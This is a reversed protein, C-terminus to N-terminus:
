AQETEEVKEKRKTKLLVAYYREREEPLIAEGNDLKTRVIELIEQEEQHAWHRHIRAIWGNIYLEGAPEAADDGLLLEAILGGSEEPLKEIIITPNFVQDDDGEYSKMESQLTAAIERHSAQTWQQPPLEKLIHARWSPSSLLVGLLAREAKIVGSDVNSAAISLTDSVDRNEEAATPHQSSHLQPSNNKSHHDDQKNWRKHAALVERRVAAEVMELRSPSTIGESRAWQEALWSIYSDKETANQVEAIVESGARVAEKRSALESFDFEAVAMEVRYQMLLKANRLANDFGIEGHKKVFTDPDDEAPLAVVRVDLNNAAFLPAARLAARMGASDGDFCLYVIRPSLRRLMAVHQTTLATGLTAVTNSFGAEHLAIADMYGETIIVSQRKGVEARALHYAYLIQSKNFLIGEPSNIYKADPNGTSGGELARGGFAIVRGSSDWIPFMLRHRFRDYFRTRGEGERSVLLGAAGGEDPRFGYRNLLHNHLADWSDPSYGIGFKEMTARSLQRSRAYDRAPNGANGAFEERFFAAAAAVVRGVQERESPASSEGPQGNSESDNGQVGPTSRYQPLAVGYRDALMRKAEPFTINEVKQVFKFLDGSEGCNHVVGLKTTFSHTSAVTIDIVHREENTEAIRSIQSWYYETDGIREFFGTLSERIRNSLSWCERHKQGQASSYEPSRALATYQGSQIALAFLGYSLERSVSKSDGRANGDGCRYGALLARQIERPWSLVEAPIKKNACGKGFWFELQRALDTKCCIIERLHKEPNLFQSCSLGFEGQLVRGVENALDKEDHHFTWRVSRPNTSGEALYLGYVFATKANVPLELIRLVRKGIKYPAIIEPARLSQAMRANEPVVPFLLFDGASMQSADAKTVVPVKSQFRRQASKFRTGRESSLYLFPLAARADEAKVFLCTHDSTLRLPDRRFARTEIELIAGRKKETAIIPQWAGCKDLVLDGIQADGIRKFGARTWILEDEDLCGFCKYFGKDRSVYFSPTKEDHFPCCAKWRDNGAPRLVVHQGVIDVIDARQRIEETTADM